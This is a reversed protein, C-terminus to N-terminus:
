PWEMLPMKIGSLHIAIKIKPQRGTAYTDVINKTMFHPWGKTTPQDDDFILPQLDEQFYIPLHSSLISFTMRITCHGKPPSSFLTLYLAYSPIESQQDDENPAGKIALVSSDAHSSKKESQLSICWVEGLFYVHKRCCKQLLDADWRVILEDNVARSLRSVTLNDDNTSDAMVHRDKFPRKVLPPKATKARMSSSCLPCISYMCCM